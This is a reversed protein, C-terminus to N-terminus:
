LHARRWSLYAGMGKDFPTDTTLTLFDIRSSRFTHAFHELKEKVLRRYRDRIADPETRLKEGSELDEFVSPGEFPLELEARDLIQFVMVESKRAELAQLTKIMEAEQTMLDSFLLVFSKKQFRTTLSRVAEDANWVGTGPMSSLSEFYRHLFSLQSEPPLFQTRSLLGVADHQSVILYGVAAAMTKAYELKSPNNGWAFNMSASDDVIVVSQVNTQEEYQKLVLRDTRGFVKWDLSRIDDGPNYPRHESFDQSHGRNRNIHHGSYLGDLVRRARLELNSLQAITVPDLLAEKSTM